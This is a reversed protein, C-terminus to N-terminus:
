RSMAALRVGDTVACEFTTSPEFLPMLRTSLPAVVNAIGLEPPPLCVYWARLVFFGVLTCAFLSRPPTLATDVTVVALLRLAANAAANYFYSFCL